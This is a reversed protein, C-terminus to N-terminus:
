YISHAIMTLLPECSKQKELLLSMLLTFVYTVFIEPTLENEFANERVNQDETLIQVLNKKLHMLSIEMMKRGENKDKAAFSMSHLNFFEPYKQSSKYVTDFLWAICETFSEFVLVQGNM